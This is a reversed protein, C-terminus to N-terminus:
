RRSAGRSALSEGLSWLSAGLLVIDKLLPQGPVVALTPFGGLSPEWGPTSLVVRLTTLFMLIALLSGLAAVRPSLCGMGIMVAMAMEVVGLVDSFGQVSLLGYLWAMLPSHAVLPQIGHAEYATLQMAGIWFLVLVLGYRSVFAGLARLTAAIPRPCAICVAQARRGARGLKGRRPPSGPALRSGWIAAAGTRCSSRQGRRHRGSAPGVKHLNQALGGRPGSGERRPAHCCPRRPLYCARLPPGV